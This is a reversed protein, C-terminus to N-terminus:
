LWCGYQDFHGRPCTYYLMAPFVVSAPWALRFVLQFGQVVFLYSVVGIARSPIWAEGEDETRFVGNRKATVYCIM